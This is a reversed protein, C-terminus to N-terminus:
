TTATVTNPQCCTDITGTVTATNVIDHSANEDAHKVTTDCHFTWSENPDVSGDNNTDGGDFVVPSCKDDTVGTAKDVAVPGTSTVTYTFHETANDVTVADGSKAIAIGCVGGDCAWAHAAPAASLVFLCALAASVMHRIRFELNM